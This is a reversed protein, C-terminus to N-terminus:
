RYGSAQLGYLDAYRGNRAMLQEHSGVEAVGGGDLVVILDAMRVTSFRHSVLLTIAGEGNARRTAASFREFLAHETEADLSATPEDLVLLLPSTRMLARGLAVKQWQGGSLDVGGPWQKGLQTELGGPLAGALEAGGARELAALVVPPDDLRPVDGVGVAERTLLEFRVFDQFGASLASRWGDQGLTNLDVRDVQIRGATPEYFRCLLKILTTKGAGNEGVLAVVSGAPLHLDVNSLVQASTGPYRFSVGQLAIGQRLVAPVPNAPAVAPTERRAYSRLWRFREASQLLDITVGASRVVGTVHEVFRTALLFALLVAGLGAAGRLALAVVLGVAAIMTLTSTLGGCAAVIALRWRARRLVADARERAAQCRRTIESALNFVRIEMGGPATVALRLLQDALRYDAASAQEARASIRRGAVQLWLAALGAVPLLLLAPHVAALLVATIIFGSLEQLLNLCWNLVGGMGLVRSRLLHLRDQFAPSEHHRLGPIGATLSALMTDFAFGVRESLTIRTTAGAVEVARSAGITLTLLLAGALVEARLHHAAGDVLQRIWLAELAGFGATVPVLVFVLVALLRSEKFSGALLTALAALSGRLSRREPANEAPEAEAPAPAPATAETPEPQEAQEPPRPAAAEPAGFRSAQAQFMAAYRGRGALLETHTGQEIVRGAEVVYILDARRVSAFRHSVLVTTIGRTLELFREFLAAESRVDLNATPEDLIMLGADGAALLARALAVKQWQGGSLDTGGAFEPSLVTDWGAPLQGPLAAGGAMALAREPADPDGAPPDALGLNDRLSLPYRVFDQFVATVRRRWASPDLERLDDGDVRIRGADPDYLRTLLKILTSKGAGNVGVIAVSKGAPIHLSLDCLVDRGTGPYAFRVSELVIDPAARRESPARGGPPDALDGGREVALGRLARLGVLGNRVLLDADGTWGLMPIAVAAQVFMVLGALGVTGRAAALALAVLVPGEAAVLVLVGLYVHRQAARRSAWIAAMADHWTESMRRLVWDRLGFLRLEKAPGPDVALGRFYGTRRIAAAVGAVSDHVSDSLRHYQRYMVAAAVCLVVPAWWAFGALIVVLGVAELRPRVVTPLWVVLQDPRWQPDIALRVEDAYGPDELHAIGAPTVAASLVQADVAKAVRLRLASTLGSQLCGLLVQGVAVAGFAVLVAVLHRGAASDPGSRVAAPMAGVLLGATVVLLSSAVAGGIVVATLALTRGPDARLLFAAGRALGDTRRRM